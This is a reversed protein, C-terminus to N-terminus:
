PIASSFQKLHAFIAATATKVRETAEALNLWPKSDKKGHYIAVHEASVYDRWLEWPVERFCPRCVLSALRKITGCHPCPENPATPAIPTQWSM